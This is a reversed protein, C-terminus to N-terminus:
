RAWALPSVMLATFAGARRALGEAAPAILGGVTRRDHDRVQRRDGLGSNPVFVRAQRRYAGHLRRVSGTGCGFKTGTFKLGERIVWMLPTAPPADTSAARRTRTRGLDHRGAATRFVWSNECCGRRWRADIGPSHSGDRWKSHFPRLRAAPRGFHRLDPGSISHRAGGTHQAPATCDGQSRLAYSQALRSISRAPILCSRFPM